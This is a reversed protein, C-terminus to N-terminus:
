SNEMNNFVIGQKLHGTCGKHLGIVELEGTKTNKAM